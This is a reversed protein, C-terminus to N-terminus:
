ADRWSGDHLYRYLWARAMRWRRVVTPVSVGLVSAVEELTLGGFFHMEVIRGQEADVSSLRLLAQDLVLWDMNWSSPLLAVDLDLRRALGGRKVRRRRRAYDVLVRRMVQASVAFFHARGKWDVQRQDVLRLYAEHVLGSTGLTHDRRERRLRSSALRRLEEYVLPMLAEFAQTEGQSWRQLWRTVDASDRKPPQQDMTRGNTVPAEEAGDNETTLDFLVRVPVVDLSERPGSTV